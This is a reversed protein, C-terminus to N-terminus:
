GGTEREREGEKDRCQHEFKDFSNPARSARPIRFYQKGKTTTATATTPTTTAEAIQQQLKMTTAEAAVHAIKAKRRWKTKAEEAKRRSRKAKWCSMSVDANEITCSMLTKFKVALGERGRERQRGEDRQRRLWSSTQGATAWNCKVRTRVISSQGLANFQKCFDRGVKWLM